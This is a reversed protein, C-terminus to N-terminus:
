TFFVVSTTVDKESMWIRLSELRDQYRESM